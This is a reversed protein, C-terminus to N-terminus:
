NNCDLTPVDAPLTVLAKGRGGRAGTGLVKCDSGNNMVDRGSIVDGRVTGKCDVGRKLPVTEMLLLVGGLTKVGHDPTGCSAIFRDVTVTAQHCM